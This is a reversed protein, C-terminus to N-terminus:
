NKRRHRSSRKKRSVVHGDLFDKVKNRDSATKFMFVRKGIEWMPIFEVPHDLTPLHNLRYLTSDPYRLEFRYQAKSDYYLLLKKELASQGLKCIKPLKQKYKM